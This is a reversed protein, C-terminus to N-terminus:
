LASSSAPPRAHSTPYPPHRHSSCILNTARRKWAGCTAVSGWWVTSVTVMVSVRISQDPYMKRPEGRHNALQGSVTYCPWIDSPPAGELAARARQARSRAAGSACAAGVFLTGILRWSERRPTRRGLAAGLALQHAEARTHAGLHQVLLLTVAAALHGRTCARADHPACCAHLCCLSVLECVCARPRECACDIAKPEVKRSGSARSMVRSLDARSRAPLRPAVRQCPEAAAQPTVHLRQFRARRRGHSPPHVGLSRAAGDSPRPKPGPRARV